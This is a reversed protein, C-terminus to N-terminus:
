GSMTVVVDVTDVPMWIRLSTSSVFEIDEVIIKMGTNYNRVSVVLDTSTMGVEALNIDQYYSGGSPVWSDELLVAYTVNNTLGVNSDGTCHVELTETSNPMYIRITTSDYLVVDQPEIVRNTATDIVTVVAKGNLIDSVDIDQYYSSVGDWLWNGPGSSLTASVTTVDSGGITLLSKGIICVDLRLSIAALPIWVRLTDDDIYELNSPEIRPYTTNPPTRDYLDVTVDRGFFESIDIDMRAYPADTIWGTIADLKFKSLGVAPSGEPIGRVFLIEATTGISIARGVFQWFPTTRQNTISGPTYSSLYVLNGAAITAAGEIPVNEVRGTTQVVGKTGIKVVVGDATASAYTASALSLTGSSNIRVLDGLSFATTDAEFRSGSDINEWGNEYGLYFSDETPVYTFRGQDRTQNFTPLIIDGSAYTKVHQRQVDGDYDYLGAIVGGSIEVAKLFMLDTFNAFTPTQSPTLIKISAQPAPRSKAYTYQLVVYYVGDPPTLPAPPSIYQDSDTFNVSHQSTIEILVSDKYAIGPQVVVTDTPSTSDSVVQLSNYYDLVNDGRTVIGTLNNVVNSNYSAYPDVTRSQDPITSAM